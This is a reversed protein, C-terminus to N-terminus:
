SGRVVLESGLWHAHAGDGRAQLKRRAALRLSDVASEIKEGVRLAREHARAVLNLRQTQCRVGPKGARRRAISLFQERAHALQVLEDALTADNQADPWHERLIARVVTQRLPRALQDSRRIRRVM